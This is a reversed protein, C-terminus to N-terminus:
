LSLNQPSQSLCNIFTILRSVLQILRLRRHRSTVPLQRFVVVVLDATLQLATHRQQLIWRQLGGTVTVCVARLYMSACEVTWCDNM